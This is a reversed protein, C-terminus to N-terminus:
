PKAFPADGGGIASGGAPASIVAAVDAAAGSVGAAPKDSTSVSKSKASNGSNRRLNPLFTDIDDEEHRFYRIARRCQDYARETLTWASRVRAMSEATRTTRRQERQSVISFVTPAIQAARQLDAETIASCVTKVQEFKSRYLVVWAVVDSPVEKNGSGAKIERVTNADFIGSAAIPEAWLAFKAAFANVEAILADAEAPEPIPLNTVYLYWGAIVYDRLLDVNRMNFDPLTAMRDRYALIRELLGILMSAAGVSDYNLTVWNESKVADIESAVRKEALGAEEFNGLIMGVTETAM